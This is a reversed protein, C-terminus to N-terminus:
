ITLVSNSEQKLTAVYENQNAFDTYNFVLENANDFYIFSFSLTKLFENRHMIFGNEKEKNKEFFALVNEKNIIPNASIWKKFLNERRCQADADYLTASSWIHATFKDLVIKKKEVGDWVLKFLNNASWVILTFPEIDSLDLLEWDDIPLISQLLEKVILGRSKTYKHQRTHNVFGGNLLVIVNNYNNAGVWTGEGVPDKPYISEITNNYKYVKPIIATARYPNEDRISGLFISKKYPIFVVTCM